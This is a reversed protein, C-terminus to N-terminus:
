VTMRMAWKCIDKDKLSTFYYCHVGCCYFLYLYLFLSLYLHCYISNACNYAHIKKGRKKMMYLQKVCVCVCIHLVTYEKILMTEFIFNHQRKYQDYTYMCKCSMWIYIRDYPYSSHYLHIACEVSLMWLYNIGSLLKCHNVCLCVYMSVCFFSITIHLEHVSCLLVFLRQQMLHNRIHFSKFLCMFM